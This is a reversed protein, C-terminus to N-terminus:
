RMGVVKADDRRKKSLREQKAREKEDAIIQRLDTGLNDSIFRQLEVKPIMQEGLLLPHLLGLNILAYVNGPDTRLKRATEVVSFVDPQRQIAKAAKNIFSDGFYDILRKAFHEKAFQHRDVKLPGVKWKIRKTRPM